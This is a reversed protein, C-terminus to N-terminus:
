TVFGVRWLTSGFRVQADAAAAGAEGVCYSQKVFSHCCAYGWSGERWFSGWVAAHNNNFVDEEYRSHSKQEEGKILRGAADYEM